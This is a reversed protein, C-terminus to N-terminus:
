EKEEDSDNDVVVDLESVPEKSSEEIDGVLFQYGKEAQSVIYLFSRGWDKVKSKWHNVYALNNSYSKSETTSFDHIDCESCALSAIIEAICEEKAYEENKDYNLPLKVSKSISEFYKWYDRNCRDYRMTSHGLEHFAVSWYDDESRTHKNLYVTDESPVYCPIDNTEEITVGTRKVYNDVIVQPKTHTVFVEGAELKSPLVGKEEDIFCTRDAVKTYRLINRTRWVKTGDTRYIWGNIRLYGDSKLFDDYTTGTDKLDEFEEKTVDKASTKFFVVYWWDREKKKTYRYNTGHKENYKIIQNMTLYEGNPLFLRNFGHYQNGTAWNFSLYRRYPMQWPMKGEKDVDKLFEEILIEDVKKKPKKSVSSKKVKTPM